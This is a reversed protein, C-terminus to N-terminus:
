NKERVCLIAACRQIMQQLNVHQRIKSFWFRNLSVYASVFITKSPEKM